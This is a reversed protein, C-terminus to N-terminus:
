ESFSTFYHCLLNMENTGKYGLCVSRIDKRLYMNKYIICFFMVFIRIVSFERHSQGKFINLFIRPKQM